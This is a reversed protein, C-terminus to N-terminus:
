LSQRCRQIRRTVLETLREPLDSGLARVDDDDAAAAFAGPVRDMLSAARDRVEDVTLSFEAAVKPWMTPSRSLLSYDKGYRMALRVKRLTADEYPLVSAVDYLPAFAVQPGALLLAYNKAHGDTGAILWNFTVADFFRRVGELAQDAPLVSRLLACVDTTSPGGENEYKESPARGLAQCVDEQHIRRLWPSGPARDYRTAVVASVDEFRVVRTPAAVLGALAAARLCLHENLDHQDLGAIAPKLIHSTAAAGSPVGWRDSADDRLLATKAQAGALSFRGMVETGLWTSADQRLDRLRRAVEAESLWRVDGAGALAEELREPPVFRAAGACEEGVPTSLLAFPSSASVSFRRGWSRRVAESDPLLGDLWPAVTANGYPAPSLPMGVSIPTGGRAVYEREYTLRVAGRVRRITAAHQGEMVVALEDPARTM